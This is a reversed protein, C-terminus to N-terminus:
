VSKTESANDPKYRIKTNNFQNDSDIDGLSNRTQQELATHTLGTERIQTSLNKIIGDQQKIMHEYGERKRWDAFFIISLTIAVFILGSGCMSVISISKEAKNLLNVGFYLLVVVVGLSAFNSLNKWFDQM